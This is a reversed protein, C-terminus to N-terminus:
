SCLNHDNEVDAIFSAPAPYFSYNSYCRAELFILKFASIELISTSIGASPISFPPSLVPSIKPKSGRSSEFLYLVKVGPAM